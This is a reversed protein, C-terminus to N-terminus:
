YVRRMALYDYYDIRDDGRKKDYDSQARAYTVKDAEDELVFMDVYTVLARSKALLEEPAM